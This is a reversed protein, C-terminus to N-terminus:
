CPSICKYFSWRIWLTFVLTLRYHSAPCIEFFKKLIMGPRHSNMSNHVRVWNVTCTGAYSHCGLQSTVALVHLALQHSNMFDVYLWLGAIIMIDTGM